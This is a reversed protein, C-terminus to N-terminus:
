HSRTMQVAVHDVQGAMLVPFKRATVQVSNLRSNRLLKRCVTRALAELLHYPKERATQQVEEVVRRYDVTLHVNETNSAAELDLFLIVDVLVNQPTSREEETVGLQVQCHVGTLIIQDM